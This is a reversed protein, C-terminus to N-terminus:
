TFQKQSQFQQAYKHWFRQARDRRDLLRYRRQFLNSFRRFRGISLIKIWESRSKVAANTNITQRLIYSNFEVENNDLVKFHANNIPTTKDLEVQKEWLIPNQKEIEEITIHPIENPKPYLSVDPIRKKVPVYLATLQRREDPSILNELMTAHRLCGDPTYDIQYFKNENFSKVLSHFSQALDSDLYM